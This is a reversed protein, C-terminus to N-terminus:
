RTQPFRGAALRDARPSIFHTAPGLIAMMTMGVALTDNRAFRPIEAQNGGGRVLALNRAESPIVTLSQSDFQELTM